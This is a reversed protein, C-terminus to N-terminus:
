RAPTSRRASRGPTAAGSNTVTFQVQGASIRAPKPACGQPTLDVTVTRAQGPGSRGGPGPPSACGTAALALGAVVAVGGHRRRRRKADNSM